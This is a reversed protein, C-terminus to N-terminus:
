WIVGTEAGIFEALSLLTLPKSCQGHLPTEIHLVISVSSSMWLPMTAAQLACAVRFLHNNDTLATAVTLCASLSSALLYMQRCGLKNTLAESVLLSCASLISFLLVSRNRTLICSITSIQDKENGSSLANRLLLNVFHRPWSRGTIM